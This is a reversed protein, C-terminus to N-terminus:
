GAQNREDGERAVFPVLGGQAAMERIPRMPSGGLFHMKNERKWFNGMQRSPTIVLKKRAENKALHGSVV